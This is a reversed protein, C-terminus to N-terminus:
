DCADLTELTRGIARRSLASAPVALGLTTMSDVGFVAGVVRGRADLVPGADGERVASTVRLVKTRAGYPAGPVRDVVVGPLMRLKGNREVVVVVSAGMAVRSAVALRRPLKRAVQAVALEGVRYASAAGVATSRNGAWVRVYGGGEIVDRHAVLTHADIAFGRGRSEDDCAPILTPLAARRSLARARNRSLVRNPVFALADVEPVAPTLAPAAVEIPTTPAEDTMVLGCATLLTTVVFLLGLAAARIM